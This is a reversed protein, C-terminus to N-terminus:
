GQGGVQLAVETGGLEPDLGVDLVGEAAADLVIRRLGAAKKAAEMCAVLDSQLESLTVLAAAALLVATADNLALLV